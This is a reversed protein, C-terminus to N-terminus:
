YQQLRALLEDTTPSVGNNEKHTPSTKAPRLAVEITPAGKRRIRVKDPAPPLVSFPARPTAARSDGSGGLAERLLFDAGRSRQRQLAARGTKTRGAAASRPTRPGQLLKALGGVAMMKDLEDLVGPSDVAVEYQEKFTKMDIFFQELPYKKEDFAYFKTFSAWDAKMKSHMQLSGGM